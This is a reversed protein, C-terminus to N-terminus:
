KQDCFLSSENSKAQYNILHLLLTLYDCLNSQAQKAVRSGHPIPCGYPAPTVILSQLTNNEKRNQPKSVLGLFNQRGCKVQLVQLNLLDRQKQSGRLTKPVRAQGPTLKTVVQSDPAEDVLCCALVEWSFKSPM